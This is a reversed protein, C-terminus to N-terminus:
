PLLEEQIIRKWNDNYQFGAQVATNILDNASSFPNQAHKYMYVALSARNGGACHVFAPQPLTSLVSAAQLVAKSDIGESSASIPSTAYALGRSQCLMEENDLNAESPLRVNLVSKYGAKVVEDM